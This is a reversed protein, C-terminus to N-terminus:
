EDLKSSPIVSSFRALGTSVLSVAMEKNSRLIAGTFFFPLLHLCLSQQCLIGMRPKVFRM